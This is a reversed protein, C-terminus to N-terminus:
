VADLQIWYEVSNIWIKLKHSPTFSILTEVPQASKIAIAMPGDSSGKSYIGPKSPPDGNDSLEIANVITLGDFTPSNASGIGLATLTDAVSKSVLNKSGDTFVPLSATLGSITQGAFTPSADSTLDQNVHTAAEVHLEANVDVAAGAAVDLSATGNTMNFTNAGGTIILAGGDKLTVDDCAVGHGATAESIHDAKLTSAGTYIGQLLWRNDGGNADAAIVDPSSEAATSAAWKYIYQVNSVTVFAVDGVVLGTGDISDLKTAEGGTLGTKSMYVVNAM